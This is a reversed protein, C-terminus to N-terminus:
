FTQAVDGYIALGSMGKMTHNDKQADQMGRIM